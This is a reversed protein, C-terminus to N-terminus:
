DSNKLFFLIFGPEKDSNLTSFSISVNSIPFCIVASTKSTPCNTSIVPVDFPLPYAPTM